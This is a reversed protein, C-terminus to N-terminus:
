LDYCVKCGKEWRFRTKTTGPNIEAPKELCGMRVLLPIVGSRIGVMRWNTVPSGRPMSMFRLNAVYTPFGNELSLFCRFKKKALELVDHWLPPYFQLQTPDSKGKHGVSQSPMSYTWSQLALPCKNYKSRLSDYMCGNIKYTKLEEKDVDKDLRVVFVSSTVVTLYLV